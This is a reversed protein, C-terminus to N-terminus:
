TKDTFKIPELNKQVQDRLELTNKIESEKLIGQFFVGRIVSELNLIRTRNKGLM